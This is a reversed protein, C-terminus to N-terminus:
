EGSETSIAAATRSVTEIKMGTAAARVPSTIVKADPELGGTIIARTRDSSAVQVEVIELLDNNALFVQGNGRLASRPIVLANPLARGVVDAQVFLGVALPMGDDAGAGYPDQVEVFAFLVRTSSDIVSDTRTIRGQWTRHKGAVTASVTVEPGPHQNDEVFALPLGLKALEDDTLPVRVDVVSTSFIRGLRAGPTVYQGVDAGKTRVRGTFPARIRTRALQLKAVGLSAKAAALSARAQALQPERLTLASAEGEGLEAWDKAAIQSEAEERLLAQQAQAVTADAQVVRLDFDASEIRILVDGKRFFGGELFGPSIYEIKGGVQPVLDIETRPKVEGQTLVHLSVSETSPTTVLVPLAKVKQEEKVVEPKFVGILLFGGVGVLLILFPLMFFFFRGIARGAGGKKVSSDPVYDTQISM